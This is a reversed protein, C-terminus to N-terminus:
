TSEYGEYEWAFMKSFQETFCPWSVHKCLDMKEEILKVIQSWGQYYPVVLLYNKDEVQSLAQQTVVHVQFYDAGEEGKIGVAITCWYDVFSPDEPIWKDIPDHDACDFSKIEIAIYSM